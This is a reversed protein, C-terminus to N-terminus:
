GTLYFHSLMQGKGLCLNLQFCKHKEADELAFGVIRSFISHYAKNKMFYRVLTDDLKSTVGFDSWKKIFPFINLGLITTGYNNNFFNASSKMKDIENFSTKLDFIYRFVYLKTFENTLINKGSVYAISNENFKISTANIKGPIDQFVEQPDSWDNIKNKISTIINNAMFTTTTLKLETESDVVFEVSIKAMDLFHRIGEKEYWDYVTGYQIAKDFFDEKKSDYFAKFFEKNIVAFWHIWVITKKIVEKMRDFVPLNSDKNSFFHYKLLQDLLYTLVVAPLKITKSPIEDTDGGNFLKKVRKRIISPFNPIELIGLFIAKYFCRYENDVPDAGGKVNSVLNTSNDVLTEDEEINDELLNIKPDSMDFETKELALKGNKETIGVIAKEFPIFQLTFVGKSTTGTTDSPINEFPLPLCWCILDGRKVRYPGARVMITGTDQVSLQSPIGNPTVVHTGVSVGVFSIKGGLADHYREREKNCKELDDKDNETVTGKNFSNPVTLGNLVSSVMLAPYNRNMTFCPAGAPISSEKLQLKRCYLVLQDSKSKPLECNIRELVSTDFVCPTTGQLSPSKIEGLPMIRSRKNSEM